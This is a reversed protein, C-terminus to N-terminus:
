ISAAGRFSGPSFASTLASKGACLLSQSGTRRTLRKGSGSSAPVGPRRRSIRIKWSHAGSGSTSNLSSSETCIRASEQLLGCRKVTRGGPSPATTERSSCRRYGAGMGNRRAPTSRSSWCDTTTARSATPENPLVGPQLRAVADAVILAPLEGGTLVYNGVSLEEVELEDLVRQDIGEYHGCLLILWPEQALEQVKQQTLVEGQPSMYIIRPRGEGQSKIASICDYVPQAQMLMGTGGGYPKDDVRRHKNETYKRIDHTYVEIFGNRIGRGVISENLVSDCMQTFLTAIDIRM